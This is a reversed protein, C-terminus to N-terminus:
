RRHLSGRRREDSPPLYPRSDQPIAPQAVAFLGRVRGRGIRYRAVGGFGVCVAGKFTVPAAGMDAPVHDHHNNMHHKVHPNIATKARAAVARFDNEFMTRDIYFRRAAL